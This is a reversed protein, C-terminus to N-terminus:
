RGTLGAGASSQPSTKVSVRHHWSPQGCLMCKLDEKGEIVGETKRKCGVGRRDMHCGVMYNYHCVTFSDLFAM